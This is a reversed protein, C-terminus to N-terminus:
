HRFDSKVMDRVVTTTIAGLVLFGVFPIVDLVLNSEATAVGETVLLDDSLFAVDLSFLMPMTTVEITQEFGNDFLMGTGPPLEPLGGLGQALEWFIDAVDVLWQKDSITIIAQGPM